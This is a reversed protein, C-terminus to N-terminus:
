NKNRAIQMLNKNGKLLPLYSTIEDLESRTSPDIGDVIGQGSVPTQTQGQNARARKGEAILLLAEQGEPTMEGMLAGGFQKAVEQVYPRLSDDAKSVLLERNHSVLDRNQLETQFEKRMDALAKANEAKLEERVIYVKQEAETMDDWGRPAVLNTGEIIPGVPHQPQNQVVSQAALTAVAQIYAPDIAQTQVVPEQKPEPETKQAQVIPEGNDDLIPEAGGGAGDDADRYFM